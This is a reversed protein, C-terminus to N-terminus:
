ELFVPPGEDDEAEDDDESGSAAGIAARPHGDLTIIGEDIL